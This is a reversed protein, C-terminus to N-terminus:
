ARRGSISEFGEAVRNGGGNRTDMSVALVLKACASAGKDAFGDHFRKALREM